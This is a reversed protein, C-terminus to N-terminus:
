RAPDSPYRFRDPTTGRVGPVTLIRSMSDDCFPDRVTCSIWYAAETDTIRAALRMETGAAASLRHILAPDAPDTSGEFAIWVRLKGPPQAVKSACAALLVASLFL